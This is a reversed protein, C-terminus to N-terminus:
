PYYIRELSPYTTLANQITHVYLDAKMNTEMALGLVELNFCDFIVSVYLKGDAAKVQTIDTICKKLPADSIFDRKLLDSSKMAERDTKTVGNPKHKPRHSLGIQDVIGYVSRESPIRIGEPQKLLLAQYMRTRGYTDNCEDESSIMRMVDALDQYKWPRDKNAIYKYVGQRSVGLTNCYFSTKGKIGGDETKLAIFMM